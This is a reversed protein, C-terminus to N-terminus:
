KRQCHIGCLPLKPTFQIRTHLLTQMHYVTNTNISRNNEYHEKYIHKKLENFRELLIREPRKMSEFDARAVIYNKLEKELPYSPFSSDCFPNHFFFKHTCTQYDEQEATMFQLDAM